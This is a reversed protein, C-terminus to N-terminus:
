DLLIDIGLVHFCQGDKKPFTANYYYKLFPYIGTLFKQTLEEIKSRVACVDVGNARLEECVVKLCRKAGKSYATESNVFEPHNKNLSYNTLHIYPNSFNQKTPPQYDEVCFRALGEENLYCIYPSVSSILVYLRLDFKKGGLLLPKDIYPQVIWESNSIKPIDTIKRILCIGDGQCGVSPKAIFVGGNKIKKELKQEDEPLLYTKPYFWFNEPWYERFKNLM